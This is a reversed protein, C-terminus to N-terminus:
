RTARGTPGYTYSPKPIGFINVMTGIITTKGTGAFGKLIYLANPTKDFIFESLKMLVIDQQANVNHPFKSKLLKYFSDTNM